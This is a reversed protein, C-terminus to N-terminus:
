GFLYYLFYRDNRYFHSFPQVELPIAKQQPSNGSPYGNWKFEGRFELTEMCFTFREHDFIKMFNTNNLLRTPLM